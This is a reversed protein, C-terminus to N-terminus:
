RAGTSSSKNRWMKKTNESCDSALFIWKNRAAQLHRELREKGYVLTGMKSAFSLLKIIKEETKDTLDKSIIVGGMAKTREIIVLTIYWDVPCKFCNFKRWLHFFSSATRNGSTVRDGDRCQHYITYLFCFVSGSIVM